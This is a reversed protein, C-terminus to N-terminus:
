DAFEAPHEIRRVDEDSLGDADTGAARSKALQDELKANESELQARLDANRQSLEDATAQEADAADGGNEHEHESM